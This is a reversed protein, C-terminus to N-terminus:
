CSKGKRIYKTFKWILVLNFLIICFFMFFDGYKTYFTSGKYLPMDECVAGTINLYECGNKEVKQTIRGYPDIFCSIGTNSVRAISTRNEVARFINCILHQYPGASDKFWADNSINVVFSAGKLVFNRFLNAFISEWCITIGFPEENLPFVKANNGPIFNVKLDPILFSLSLRGISPIYEGFPLLKIKQYEGLIRGQSSIYFASNYTGKSRDGSGGIKTAGAAGLIIPVEIERALALIKWFDRPSSRFDLPIATEPWIILSPKEHALEKTLAKYREFSRLFTDKKWKMEQSINGQVLGVRVSRMINNNKRISRGWFSIILVLLIPSLYYCIIGVNRKELKKYFILHSLIVAISSNVLAVLFSVGYIGTYSSIQILNINKYQTQGLLAWPLALFFFNSRVYELIVWALAVFFPYFFHRYDFLHVLFGFLGFYIGLYLGSLLFYIVSYGKIHNIWVFIGMFSILGIIWSLAFAKMRGMRQIIFLLPVLAIWALFALDYKPFSLILFLPTLFALFISLRNQTIKM